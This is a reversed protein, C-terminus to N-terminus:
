QLIVRVVLDFGHECVFEPVVDVLVDHLANRHLGQNRKYAEPNAVQRQVVCDLLM